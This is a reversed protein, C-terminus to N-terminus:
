NFGRELKKIKELGDEIMQPSFGILPRFVPLKFDVKRQRDVTDGLVLGKIERPIRSFLVDELSDFQFRKPNPDWPELAHHHLSGEPHFIYARAGRKMMLWTALFDERSDVWAAVKGQSSLPLGGPGPIVRSFVYGRKGRIEVFLTHDPQDLDVKLSPTEELVYSGVKAAAEPSSYPHDGVRRARVAFSGELGRAWEKALSGIDELSSSTERAPSYSVVGFTRSFISANEEEAYAFLRGREREIIVEAKEKLFSRELNDILIDEFGKRINHSKIGLEGYRLLYLRM